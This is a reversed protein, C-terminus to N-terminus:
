TGPWFDSTRGHLVVHLPPVSRYLPLFFKKNVNSFLIITQFWLRNEPHSFLEQTGHTEPGKEQCLRWGQTSAMGAAMRGAATRPCSKPDSGLRKGRGLGAARTLGKM